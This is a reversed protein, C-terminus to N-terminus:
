LQLQYQIEFLHIWCLLNSVACQQITLDAQFKSLGSVSSSSNTSRSCLLAAFTLALTRESAGNQAKNALLGCCLDVIFLVIGRHHLPLSELYHMPECNICSSDFIPLAAEALWELILGFVVGPPANQLTPPTVTCSNPFYNNDVSSLGPNMYYSSEEESLPVFWFIGGCRSPPPTCPKVTCASKKGKSKIKLQTWFSELQEILPEQDEVVTRRLHAVVEMVATNHVKFNVSKGLLLYSISPSRFGQQAVLLHKMWQLFIPAAYPGLPSVRVPVPICEPFSTPFHKQPLSVVTISVFFRFVEGISLVTLQQFSSFKKPLIEKLHSLELEIKEGAKVECAEQLAIASPIDDRKEKDVLTYVQGMVLQFSKWGKNKLIFRENAVSSLLSFIAENEPIDTRGVFFFHSAKLSCKPIAEMAPLLGRLSVLSSPEDPKIKLVQNRSRATAVRGLIELAARQRGLTEEVDSCCCCILLERLTNEPITGHPYMYGYLFCGLDSPHVTKLRHLVEGAYKKGGALTAQRMGQYSQFSQSLESPCIMASHAVEDDNASPGDHPENERTFASKPQTFSSINTCARVSPELNDVSLSLIDELPDM